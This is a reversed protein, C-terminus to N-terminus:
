SISSCTSISAGSVSPCRGATTSRWARYPRRLRLPPRERVPLIGRAELRKEVATWSNDVLDLSAAMSKEFEAFPMDIFRAVAEDYRGAFARGSQTFGTVVTLGTPAARITFVDLDPRFHKLCLM